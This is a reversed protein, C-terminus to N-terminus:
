YVFEVRTTDFSPIFYLETNGKQEGGKRSNWRIAVDTHGAMQCIFDQDIGTGTFIMTESTCCNECDVYGNMIRFEFYDGSDVPDGNRIIFQIWAKAQMQYTEHHLFDNRLVEGDIEYEWAYYNTKSFNLKVSIYTNNPLDFSFNGENDTIAAGYSDYNASYIGSEVKQAWLEVRAGELPNNQGQDIVKGSIVIVEENKRCFSVSIALLILLIM